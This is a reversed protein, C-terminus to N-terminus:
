WFVHTIVFVRNRLIVRFDNGGLNNDGCVRDPLTAYLYSDDRELYVHRYSNAM